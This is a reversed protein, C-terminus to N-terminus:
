LMNNVEIILYYGYFFNLNIEMGFLFRKRLWLEILKLLFNKLYVLCFKKFFNGLFLKSKKIDVM